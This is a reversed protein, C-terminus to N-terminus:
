RCVPMVKCDRKIFVIVARLHCIKMDFDKGLFVSLKKKKESQPSYYAIQRTSIKRHRHPVRGHAGVKLYWKGFRIQRWYLCIVCWILPLKRLKRNQYHM